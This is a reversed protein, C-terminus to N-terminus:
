IEYHHYSFGETKRLGNLKIDEIIKKINDEVNSIDGSETTTIVIDAIGLRKYIEFKKFWRERYGIDDMRGLHEIYYFKGDVYIKFDPIIHHPHLLEKSGYEFRIDLEDLVKAIIWEIKSNVELTTKDKLTIKYPKFPSTKYGFLLTKRSEVLSNNYAKVLLFTLENKLRDDIVFHLKVRPRTLATYLLERTIFPSVQSVIFIVHDFDSGQSKHVTIAYGLDIKREAGLQDYVESNIGQKFRKVIEYGYDEILDNIDEFDVDGYDNIYGISGNALGLVRTGKAYFYINEECILKTNPAYNVTGDLVINRNIGMSGYYGIRQPTIIQVKDLNLGNGGKFVETFMDFISKTSTKCGVQALIQKIVNRLEEEDKFYYKELSGDKKNLVDEIETVSPEKQGGFLNSFMALSTSPEFRLNSTLHIFNTELGKQKLYFILDVFPRGVGIPPLQREDGVLILHELKEPNIMSFLVALVIEDVMSAEDIIVVRPNIQFSKVLKKFEGLVELKGELLDGILDELKSKEEKRTAFGMYYDYMARYLFRHITSVRIDDKKHLKLKKLRNRIVLNAKGTPTFVFIPLKEMELFKKILNIVAQTKGSGARGSVVFLGNRLSNKYLSKREYLSPLQMKNEFSEFEQRLIDEFIGEDITYKKKLMKNIFEEIIQEIERMSKLQYIVENKQSSETILFKDKFKTKEYQLLLTQDVTLKENIYYLPYNQIRSHITERTLCSNGEHNASDYLIKTILARLREPSRADYFPTEWDAYKPDPILAIDIQYISVGYDCENIDWSDQSKFQYNELIIYPNDKITEFGFKDIIKEINKFQQISLDFRSLFELREKNNKNKLIHLAKRIVNSTPPKVEKTSEFFKAISGFNKIIYKELISIIEQLDGENFDHSLMVFLANRFGPYKGREKWAVTLLKDIKKEADSILSHNILNHEKMRRISQRFLYLLYIAKDHELHMSVYKFNPILTPEEIRIAVEELKKWLENIAKEDKEKNILDLYEHYPLVFVTNPELLIQFQWATTPMNEMGPQRRIKELLEKPIKYEQPKKVNRVIGAGLLLYKNHDATIPNSYNAYFFVISKRRKLESLYQEIRRELEKPPVHRVRSGKEAYGLKFNWSFVCYEGLDYKLPPVRAFEPSYKRDADAYPHPDEVSCEADGAANICWYCPPVYKRKKPIKSIKEGRYKQEIQLNIRRQIRPSLLSYNGTCYVNRRPDKCVRGNWKNDHWAFRVTLHKM